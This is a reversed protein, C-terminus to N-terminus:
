LFPPDPDPYPDSVSRYTCIWYKCALVSRPNASTGHHEWKYISYPATYIANYLLTSCFSKVTYLSLKYVEWLGLELLFYSEAELHLDSERVCSFLGCRDREGALIRIGWPHNWFGSGPSPALWQWTSLNTQFQRRPIFFICHSIYTNWYKM